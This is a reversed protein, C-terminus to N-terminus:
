TVTPRPSVVKIEGPNAILEGFKNYAAEKVLDEEGFAGKGDDFVAEDYAGCVENWTLWHGRDTWVGGKGGRLDWWRFCPKRNAYASKV